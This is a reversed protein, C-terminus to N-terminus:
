QQHQHQAQGIGMAFMRAPRSISMCKDRLLEAVEDESLSAHALPLDYILQVLRERRKHKDSVAASVLQQELGVGCSSGATTSSSSRDSSQLYLAVANVQSKCLTGKRCASYAKSLVKADKCREMESINNRFTEKMRKCEEKSYWVAIHEHPPLVMYSPCDFYENKHENFCVRREANKTKQSYREVPQTSSQSSVDDDDELALPRQSISNRAKTFIIRRPFRARTDIKM